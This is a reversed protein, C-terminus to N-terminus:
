RLQELLDGLARTAEAREEASMLGPEAHLKLHPLEARVPQARTAINARLDVVRYIAVPYAIGRVQIRGQEECQIEGKVQAFTEYSILM